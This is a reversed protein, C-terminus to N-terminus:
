FYKISGCKKEILKEAYIRTKHVMKKLIKKKVIINNRHKIINKTEHSVLSFQFLRIGDMSRFSPVHLLLKNM